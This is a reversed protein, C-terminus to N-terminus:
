LKVTGRVKLREAIFAPVTYTAPPKTLPELVYVYGITSLKVWAPTVIPTINLVLWGYDRGLILFELLHQPTDEDAVRPRNGWGGFIDGGSGEIRFEIQVPGQINMRVDLLENNRAFLGQERLDVVTSQTINTIKHVFPFAPRVEKVTYFDSAIQINERPMLRPNFENFQEFFFVNGMDRM